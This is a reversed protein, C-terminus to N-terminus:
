TQHQQKSVMISAVHLALIGRQLRQYTCCWFSEEDDNTLFFAMVPSSAFQCHRSGQRMAYKVITTTVSTELSM